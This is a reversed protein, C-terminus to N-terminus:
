THQSVSVQKHQSSISTCNKNVHSALLKFCREFGGYSFFLRRNFHYHEGMPAVIFSGGDYGVILLTENVADVKNNITDWQYGNAIVNFSNLVIDGVKFSKNKSKSM